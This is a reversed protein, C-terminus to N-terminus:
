GDTKRVQLSASSGSPLLAGSPVGHFYFSGQLQPSCTQSLAAVEAAHGQAFRQRRPGKVDKRM